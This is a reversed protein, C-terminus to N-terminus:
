RSAATEASDMAFLRFAGQAVETAAWFARAYPGDATDAVRQYAMSIILITAEKRRVRARVSVSEPFLELGLAIKIGSTSFHQIAKDAQSPTKKL